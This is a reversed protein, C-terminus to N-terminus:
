SYRAVAMRVLVSRVRFRANHWFPVACFVGDCHASRWLCVCSDDIHEILGFRRGALGSTTHREARVLKVSPVQPSNHCFKTIAIRQCKTVCEEEVKFTMARRQVHGRNTDEVSLNGQLLERRMHFRSQRKDRTVQLAYNRRRESEAHRHPLKIRIKLYMIM